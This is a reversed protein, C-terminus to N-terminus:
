SQWHNKQEEKLILKTIQLTYSHQKSATQKWQQLRITWPKIMLLQSSLNFFFFFPQLSYLVM